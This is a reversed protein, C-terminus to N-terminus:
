LMRAFVRHGFWALEDPVSTAITALILWWLGIVDLHLGGVAVNELKSEIDAHAKAREQKEQSLEARVESLHDEFKNEREQAEKRLADIERELGDLRQEITGGVRGYALTASGALGIAGVGTLAAHHQAKFSNLIAHVRARMAAFVTPRRFQRRLDRVGQAVLVIGFLQLWTGFYRVQDGVGHDWLRGAGVALLYALAPGTFFLLFPWTQRL